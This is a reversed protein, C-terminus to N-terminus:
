SGDSPVGAPLRDVVTASTIVDGYALDKAASMGSAVRGFVTATGDLLKSYDGLVIFFQCDGSDPKGPLTALAVAGETMHFGTAEYKVSSGSGGTGVRPDSMGSKTYPDGMQVIFPKPSHIAKFVRQHDYFGEHALREIQACALPAEKEHLEIFVKGKKGFDIVLYKADPAHVTKRPVTARSSASFAPAAYSAILPFTLIM